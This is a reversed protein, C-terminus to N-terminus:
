RGRSQRLRPLTVVGTVMRLNPLAVLGAVERLNPLAMMGLVVRLRPSLTPLTAMGTSVRLSPLALDIAILSEQSEHTNTDGLDSLDHFSSSTGFMACSQREISAHRLYELYVIDNM